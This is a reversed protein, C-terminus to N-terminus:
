FDFSGQKGQDRPPLGLVEGAKAEPRADSRSFIWQIQWTSRINQRGSVKSVGSLRGRGPGAAEELCRLVRRCAHGGRALWEIWLGCGSWGRGPWWRGTRLVGPWTGSVLSLGLVGSGAAFGPEWERQRRVSRPAEAHPGARCAHRNRKAVTKAIATAEQATPKAEGSYCYAECEVVDVSPIFGRALSHHNQSASQAWSPTPVTM